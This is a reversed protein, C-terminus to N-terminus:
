YNYQLFVTTLYGRVKLLVFVHACVEFSEMLPSAIGKRYLNAILPLRSVETWHACKQVNDDIHTTSSVM